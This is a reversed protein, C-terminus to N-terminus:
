GLAAKDGRGLSSCRRAARACGDPHFLTFIKARPLTGTAALRGAVAESLTLVRDASALSRELLRNVWSTYDGPHADADHVVTCYRAGAAQVVPLVMSSWVHPM